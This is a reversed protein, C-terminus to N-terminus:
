RREDEEEELEQYLECDCEPDMCIGTEDHDEFDHGCQCENVV